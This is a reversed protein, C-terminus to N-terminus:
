WDSYDFTHEVAKLGSEIAKFVSMAHTLLWLATIAHFPEHEHEHSSKQMAACIPPGQSIGPIAMVNLCYLWIDQDIAFGAQAIQPGFQAMKPHSKGEEFIVDVVALLTQLFIAGFTSMLVMLSEHSWSM